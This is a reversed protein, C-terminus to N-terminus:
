FFMEESLEHHSTVAPIDSLGAELNSRSIVQAGYHIMAKPWSLAPDNVV